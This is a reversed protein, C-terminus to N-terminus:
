KPHNQEAAEPGVDSITQAFKGLLLAPKGSKL